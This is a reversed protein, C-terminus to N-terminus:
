APEDGGARLYAMAGKRQVDVSDGLIERAAATFDEVSRPPGLEGSRRLASMYPRSIGGRDTVLMSAFLKGGPALQDRLAALAKWPEELVHLVAFCAVTQFSRPAFPLDGLDAQVLRVPAGSLRANARKLMGLSRDVLV